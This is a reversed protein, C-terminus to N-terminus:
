QDEPAPERPALQRSRLLYWAGLVAVASLTDLLVDEPRGGREPVFTQHFEDTVAYLACLGAGILWARLLLSNSLAQGRVRWSYMLARGLLLALVAYEFIHGFKRAVMFAPPGDMAGLASQASLYFIVLM